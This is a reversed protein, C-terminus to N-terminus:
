GSLRSCPRSARNSALRQPWAKAGRGCPTVAACHVEEVLGLDEDAGARAAGAGDTEAALLEDLEAPRVAAVAALAAIDHELRHGTEIRQDVEAVRLMETSRATLATGPRVPGAGAAVVKDDLHRDSGLDEGVVFFPAQKCVQCLDPLADGEQLAAHAPTAVGAVFGGGIAGRALVLRALVALLHPHPQAELQEGVHAEETQRVGALRGQEIGDAVGAGLNAVIGERGEARLEADDAM